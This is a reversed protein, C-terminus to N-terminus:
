TLDGRAAIQVTNPKLLALAYELKTVVALHAPELIEALLVQENLLLFLKAFDHVM